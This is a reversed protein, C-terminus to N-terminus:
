SRIQKTVRGQSVVYQEKSTNLRDKVLLTALPRRSSIDCAVSIATSRTPYTCLVHEQGNDKQIASWCGEPEPPGIFCSDNAKDQNLFKMLEEAEHHSTANYVAANWGAPDPRFVVYQPKVVRSMIFNPRTVHISSPLGSLDLLVTWDGSKEQYELYSTHIFVRKGLSVSPEEECELILFRDGILAYWQCSPSPIFGAKDFHPPIPIEAPLKKIDAPLDIEQPVPTGRVQLKQTIAEDLTVWKM